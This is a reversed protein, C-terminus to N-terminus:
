LWEAESKSPYGSVDGYFLREAKPRKPPTRRLRSSHNYPGRDFTLDQTTARFTHRHCKDGKTANDISVAESEYMKKILRHFLKIRSEVDNRNEETIPISPIAYWV